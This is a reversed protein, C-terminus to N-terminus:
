FNYGLSISFNRTYGKIPDWAKKDLCNVLGLQYEFGLYIRNWTYGAGIGLGMDFRKVGTQNEGTGFLDYKTETNSEADEFDQYKETYKGNLGFALYPGFNIQLQSAEAFNLRYSAYIPLQLYGANYTETYKDDIDKVEFKVGKTTYFLGSNISFSRNLNFDVAVGVNFGIKSTKNEGFDYGGPTDFSMTSINLGARPGYTIKQDADASDWFTVQASAGLAMVAAVAAVFLKKM